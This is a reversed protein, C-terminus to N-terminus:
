KKDAAKSDVAQRLRYEQIIKDIAALTMQADMQRDIMGPVSGQLLQYLSQDMKEGSVLFNVM